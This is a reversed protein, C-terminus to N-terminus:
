QQPKAAPPPPLNLKQFGAPLTFLSEPQHAYSVATAELGSTNGDKDHGTGRLLVGDASVCVQGSGQPAQVDWVTCPQGAVTDTGKRTFRVQPNLNLLISNAMEPKLPSQMYIHQQPMVVTLLRAQQDMVLYSQPSADLRVKKLEASYFLHAERPAGAQPAHVAYTVEVDRTPMLLPRDEAAASLMPGATLLAVLAFPTYRAM